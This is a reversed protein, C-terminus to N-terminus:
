GLCLPLFEVKVAVPLNVIRLLGDLVGVLGLGHGEGMGPVLVPGEAHGDGGQGVVGTAICLKEGCGSLPSALVDEDLELACTLTSLDPEVPVTESEM